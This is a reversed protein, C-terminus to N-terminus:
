GKEAHQRIAKLFAEGFDAFKKEGVGSVGRMAAPTTPKKAAMDRLAADSFIVYAPVNRADAFERRLQRLHEFLSDGPGASYSGNPEAARTRVRRRTGSGASSPLPRMLTIPARSRLAELGSETIDLTSFKDTSQALFGMRVLERGIGQWEARPIEKGIGYTTLQDHNWRTMRESEM